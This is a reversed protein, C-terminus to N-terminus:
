DNKYVHAHSGQYCTSSTSDRGDPFFKIGSGNVSHAVNDKFVNTTSAGVPDACSHGVTIFGAYPCGAVRSNTVSSTTCGLEDYSCFAFCCEKDVVNDHFIIPRRDVGFVNVGDASVNTVGDFSVGIQTAKFVDVNKVSINQSNKISVGWGISEHIVVNEISSKLEDDASTMSNEFRIAAKFNNEQGM